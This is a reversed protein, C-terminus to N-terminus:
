PSIRYGNHVCKHPGRLRVLHEAIQRRESLLLTIRKEENYFPIQFPDDFEWSRWNPNHGYEIDKCIMQFIEVTACIGHCDRLGCLGTSTSSSYEGKRVTMKEMPYMFSDIPHKDFVIEFLPEQQLPVSAFASAPVSPLFLVAPIKLFDRRIM